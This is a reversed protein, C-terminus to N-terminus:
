DGRKLQMEVTLLYDIDSSNTYNVIGWSIEQIRSVLLSSRPKYSRTVSFNSNYGQWGTGVGSDRPRMLSSYGYCNKLPWGKVDQFDDLPVPGNSSIFDDAPVIGGAFEIYSNNFDSGDPDIFGSAKFRIHNVFVTSQGSLLPIDSIGTLLVAKQGGSLGSGILRDKVYITENNDVYYDINLSMLTVSRSM